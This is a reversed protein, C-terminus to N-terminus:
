IIRLYYQHTPRIYTSFAGSDAKMIDRNQTDNVKNNTLYYHLALAKYNSFKEYKSNPAVTTPPISSTYDFAIYYRIDHIGNM